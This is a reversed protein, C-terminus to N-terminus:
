TFIQVSKLFTNVIEQYDEAIDCPNERSRSNYFNIM